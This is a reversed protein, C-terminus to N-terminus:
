EQRLRVARHRAVIDCPLMQSGMDVVIIGFTERDITQVALRHDWGAPRSVPCHSFNHRFKIVNRTTLRQAKAEAVRQLLAIGPLTLWVNYDGGHATLNLVDIVQM